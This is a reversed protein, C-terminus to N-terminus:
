SSRGRPRRCLVGRFLFPLRAEHRGVRCAGCVERDPVMRCNRCDEVFDRATEIERRFALLREMQADLQKGIGRLMEGVARALDDGSSCSRPGRLMEAIEGLTFGLDRLRDVLRVRDWVEPAYLRFGGRTRGSPQVLGREEYFRITRSTKGTLRTLEKMRLLRQNAAGNKM